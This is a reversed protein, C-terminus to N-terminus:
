IFEVMWGYFRVASRTIPLLMQWFRLVQIGASLLGAILSIKIMQATNSNDSSIGIRANGKHLVGYATGLKSAYEPTIDV